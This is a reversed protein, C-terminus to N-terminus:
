EIGVEGNPYLCIIIKKDSNEYGIFYRKYFYVEPTETIKEGLELTQGFRVRRFLILKKEENNEIMEVINRDDIGVRGNLIKFKGTKWDLTVIMRKEQNDTETTFNSILRVEKLRKQDINSYHNDGGLDHQRLVSGDDYVAEWEYEELHYVFQPLYNLGVEFEPIGDNGINGIKVGEETLKKNVKILSNILNMRERINDDVEKGKDKMNNKASPM